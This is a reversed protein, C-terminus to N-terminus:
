AAVGLFSPFLFRNARRRARMAAKANTQMKEYPMAEANQIHLTRYLERRTQNSSGSMGLAFRYCGLAFSLVLHRLILFPYRALLERFRKM